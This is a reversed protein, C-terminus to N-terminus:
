SEKEDDTAPPEEDSEEPQEQAAQTEAAAQQAKNEEIATTVVDHAQALVAAHAPPTTGHLAHNLLAQLLQALFGEGLVALQELITQWVGTPPGLPTTPTM